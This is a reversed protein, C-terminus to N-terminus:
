AVFAGEGEVLSGQGGKDADAGADRDLEAAEMGSAPPEFVAVGQVM